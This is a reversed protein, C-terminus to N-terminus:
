RGFYAAHTGYVVNSATAADIPVYWWKKGSRKLQYTIYSLGVSASIGIGYLAPRSRVADPVIQCRDPRCRAILEADAISSGLLAGVTLWFPRRLHTNSGELPSRPAVSAGILPMREQAPKEAIASSPADPLPMASAQQTVDSPAQAMAVNSVAMLVALILAKVKCLKM